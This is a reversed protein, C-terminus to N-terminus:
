AGGLKQMYRLRRQGLRQFAQFILQSLLQEGPVAEADRQRLFAHKEPVPRLIKDGHGVLDFLFKKRQIIDGASIKVETERLGPLDAVECPLDAFEFLHVRVKTVM